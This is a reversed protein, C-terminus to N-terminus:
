KPPRATAAPPANGESGAAPPSASSGGKSALEQEAQVQQAQQQEAVTSVGAASRMQQYEMVLTQQWALPFRFFKKSAQARALEYHRTTAVAQELDVPVRQFPSPLPPPAQMAASAPDAGIQTAVQVAQGQVENFQEHQATLELFEPSPGKNWAALERRIKMLHPNDQLGLVPALSSSMLQQYEIPTIVGTEIEDLAMQRKASTGLMTFSGRAIKVDKTSRLDAGTWAEEKYSGDEAEYKARREATFFIRMLQLVIRNSRTYFDALNVRIQALGKQAEEIITRAHVGSDVSPDEVGQAAQQLSSEDNEEASMEARLETGVRPFEPVREVEPKGMPNVYIPEGNRRRLQKPQVISGDPLFTHPNGFRHLHEIAYLYVQARIEDMPGVKEVLGIGYPDDSDNDNLQRCQSVPLEMFEKRKKSDPLEFDFSWVDQELLVDDCVCVLAGEPYAGHSKMYVIMTFVISDDSPKGNDDIIEQLEMFEPIADLHGEPRWNVLKLIESESLADLRDPYTDRLDSLTSARLIHVGKADAISTVKEPIFLLNNGTTLEPVISPLWTYDAELESKTLSGDPAVFREVYEEPKCGTGTEPDLVVQEPSEYVTAKPHAQCSKAVRGGGTPDVTWHVFASAFTSAKDSVRHTVSVMNFGAEGGEVKLMRTSHEAADRDEPSDSAPEAEPVPDDSLLVNTVRRVIRDCKNPLPPANAMGLPVTAEWKDESRDLKVHRHGRRWLINRKWVANRKSRANKRRERIRVVAKCVKLPDREDLLKGRKPATPDTDEGIAEEVEVGAEDQAPDSKLNLAM